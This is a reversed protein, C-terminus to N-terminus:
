RAPNPKAPSQAVTLGTQLRQSRCGYAVARERKEGPKLNAARFTLADACAAQAQPSARRQETDADSAKADRDGDRRQGPQHPVRTRACRDAEIGHRGARREFATVHRNGSRHM